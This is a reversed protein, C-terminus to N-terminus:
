LKFVNTGGESAELAMLALASLHVANWWSGNEEQRQLLLDVFKATPRGFTDFALTTLALNLASPTELVRRELFHLAKDIVSEAGSTAQLALLAWATTPAFADLAQGFVYTNGYNWGGDACIRDLLLREAEEVRPHDGYGATRLALLTTATPEVWSFTGDNWPWGVLSTDIASVPDASIRDGHWELLWQITQEQLRRFANLRVLTFLVLGTSWHPEVDEDLIVAGDARVQSQLWDRGETM